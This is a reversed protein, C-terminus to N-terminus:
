PYCRSKVSRSNHGSEAITLAHPEVMRGSGVFSIFLMRGTRVMAAARRTALMATAPQLVPSVPGGPSAAGDVAAGAVGVGSCGVASWGVGRGGTFRGGPVASATAVATEKMRRSTPMAWGTAPVKRRVPAVVPWTSMWALEEGDASTTATALSGTVVVTERCRSRVTQYTVPVRVEAM